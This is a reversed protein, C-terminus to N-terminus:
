CKKQKDAFRSDSRVANARSDNIIYRIDDTIM